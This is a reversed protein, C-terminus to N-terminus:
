WKRTIVVRSRNAESFDTEHLGTRSLSGGSLDAGSLDAESLDLHNEPHQRRWANWAAVGQKLVALHQQDAMTNGEEKLTARM